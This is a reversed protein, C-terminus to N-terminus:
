LRQQAREKYNGINMMSHSRSPSPARGSIASGRRSSLDSNSQNTLAFDIRSGTSARYDELNVNSHVQGFRRPSYDLVVDRINNKVIEKDDHTFPLSGVLMFYMLVGLSWPDAEKAIYGRHGPNLVDPSMYEIFNWNQTKRFDINRNSFHGTGFNAVKIGM